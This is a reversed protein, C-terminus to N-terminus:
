RIDTWGSWVVCWYLQAVEDTHMYEVLPTKLIPWISVINPINIHEHRLQLLRTVYAASCPGSNDFEKPIFQFNWWNVVKCLKITKFPIKRLWWRYVNRMSNNMRGYPLQIHDFMPWCNFTIPILLLPKM